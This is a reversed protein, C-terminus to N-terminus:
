VHTSSTPPTAYGTGKAETNTLHALPNSVRLTSDDNSFHLRQQSFMCKFLAFCSRAASSLLVWPEWALGKSLKTWYFQAKGWQLNFFTGHFIAAYTHGESLTSYTYYFKGTWHTQNPTKRNAAKKNTKKSSACVNANPSYGLLINIHDCRLAGCMFLHKQNLESGPFGQKSLGGEWNPTVGRPGCSKGGGQIRGQFVLQILAAQKQM